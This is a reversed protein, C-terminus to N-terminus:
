HVIQHDTRGQQRGSSSFAGRNLEVVFADGGWLAEGGGNFSQDFGGPTPFSASDTEGAVYAHGESDVAIANGAEHGGNWGSSLYTSYLLGSGDSALKTVFADSNPIVGAGGGESDLVGPTTPFPEPGVRHTVGTVYAHGGSDIAIAYGRDAGSGGLYTAYVRTGSASFEAIFADDTTYGNENPNCLGDSGCQTDFAGITSQFDPSNTDGTVYANGSNDVAISEGREGYGGGLFTSYVLESADDSLRFVFADGNWYGVPTGIPNSTNCITDDANQTPFGGCYTKGTVYASGGPDVAIAEGYDSASGGVFTAYELGAGSVDLKVVFVDRDGGYIEEYAGSTTPFDSSATMGTVYANGMGDLAIGKGRDENAGGLFTAYFLSSGSESLDVSEVATSPSSPSIAKWLGKTAPTPSDFPAVIESERVELGDATPEIPKGAADVVQLLPMTFDGVGTALRVHRGRGRPIEVSLADAGDVNLRVRDLAAQCGGRDKCVLRWAWDGGTSSVVMDVKPYLDVYRVGGWVPVDSQWKEPDDGVFYSVRTDLRGFPELRAHPNSGPFSLKLNVGRRPEDERKLDKGRGLHLEADRREADRASRLTPTVPEVVTVWLGDEALWVARDGGRVQFRADADFQGVNEIFMLSSRELREETQIHLAAEEEATLSPSAPASVPISEAGLVQTTRATAPLPSSGLLLLSLIVTHSVKALRPHFIDV